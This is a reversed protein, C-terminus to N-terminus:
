EEAELQKEENIDYEVTVAMGEISKWLRAHESGEKVVLVDYKACGREESGEPDLRIEVITMRGGLMPQGVVYTIGTKLDGVSIKRILGSAIM